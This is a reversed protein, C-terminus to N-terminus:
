IDPGAKGLIMSCKLKKLKLIILTNSFRNLGKTPFSGCKLQYKEKITQFDHLDSFSGSGKFKKNEKVDVLKTAYRYISL